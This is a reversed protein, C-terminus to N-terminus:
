MKFHPPDLYVELRQNAELRWWKEPGGVHPQLYSSIIATGASRSRKEKLNQIEAQLASPKYDDLRGSSLWHHPWHM